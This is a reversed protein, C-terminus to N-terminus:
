FVAPDGYEATPTRHEDTLKELLPVIDNSTPEALMEERLHQAAKTFSPDELVQSVKQRLIAPTVNAAPISLGAGLEELRTAKVETDWGIVVIIQPVGHFEATTRTGAGGHHVVAACTPLLDHFPVFEVVRTNPPVVPIQDRQAANLTAIIEADFDAMGELIDAMSFESEGAQRASLGDTLCIRPRIPPARLWDPLVSPGNFPVYRVGVTRLGLDLRTSPPTPDITWHGTLIEEDFHCGFRQLTRELWEATPDERHEPPRADACRLFAQRASIAIDPGWVLRAHAAGIVHAVVGGAYTFTERIVLDPQWDRAFAVLDDIIAANNLPDYFASVMLNELTLLGEWTWADQDRWDFHQVYDAGGAVLLQEYMESAQAAGNENWGAVGVPVATLGTQTITDTLEPAAAVRVEHGATRLAWAIPVLPFYHTNHAMCVFLVKM